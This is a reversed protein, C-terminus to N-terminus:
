PESWPGKEAASGAQSIIASRADVTRSNSTGGLVYDVNVWDNADASVFEEVRKPSCLHYHPKGALTSTSALALSTMLLQFLM